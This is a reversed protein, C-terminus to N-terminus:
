FRSGRVAFGLAVGLAVGLALTLGVCRAGCAVRRVVCAVRRVGCVERRVGKGPTWSRAACSSCPSRRSRLSRGQRALLPPCGCGCGCGCGRHLAHASGPRRRRDHGYSSSHGHHSRAARSRPRTALCPASAPMGGRTAPRGAAWSQPAHTPVDRCAPTISISRTRM